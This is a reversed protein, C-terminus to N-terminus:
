LRTISWWAGKHPEESKDAPIENFDFSQRYEGYGQNLSLTLRKEKRGGEGTVWEIQLDQLQKEEERLLDTQRLFEIVEESAEHETIDEYKSHDVVKFVPNYTAFYIGDSEGGNSWAVKFVKVVRKVTRILKPDWCAL